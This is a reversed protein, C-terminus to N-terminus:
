DPSKAEEGDKPPGVVEAGSTAAPPRRRLFSLLAPTVFFDAFWALAIMSAALRGLTVNPQYDSLNMVMFGTVLIITANTVAAGVQRFSYRLAEVSTMGKRRAYSFKTLLHITDDIAVGIAITTVVVSPADLTIGVLGFFALSIAIPLVNPVMAVLAIFFSRYVVLILLSIAAIAIALSVLMSRTSTEAMNALLYLRGTLLMESFAKGGAIQEETGALAPFESRAIERLRAFAAQHMDSSAQDVRLVIRYARRDPSVFNSLNDVPKAGSEYQVYYQAILSSADQPPIFTLEEMAEDRELRAGRADAALDADTPVRYFAARNENQAQHIKKIIDLASDLKALVALPSDEDQMETRIRSEFREVQTLFEASVAIRSRLHRGEEARLRDLESAETPTLGPATPDEEALLRKIELRELGAQRAAVKDAPEVLEQAIFLLDLEGSGGIRGEIWDLDEIVADGDPFWARFDNDLQTRSAGFITLAIVGATVALIHKRRRVSFEVFRDTWYPRTGDLDPAAERAAASAKRVPILSLFAPAVTMTLLYAFIVGIGGTYGDMKVPPLTSSVQSFFAVATTMSTLFVPLANRRLVETILERKDSYRPRLLYYATVIHVTEAMCVTVLMHPSIATMNNMLDGAAWVAGEMGIIAALTIFLPILSAGVRRYLVFVVIALLVFMAGLWKMDRMGVVQFNREFVPQGTMRFDYSGDKELIRQIQDLAQAQSEQQFIHPGADRWAEDDGFAKDLETPTLKPRLLLVQMAATRGDPSVLGNLLRPDGIHDDFNANPGLAKRVEEEGALAAARRAGLVAIMRELRQEKTYEAPPKDFLDTVLLGEEGPAAEGWRIWPTTTLSRVHRVFPVRGLDRSLRAMAEISRTGFVGWPDDQDEFAVLVTDEPIFQQEIQYYTSVAPDARDFWIDVRADFLKPQTPGPPPTEKLADIRKSFDMIRSMGAAMLGFMLLLMAAALPWRWRYLRGILRVGRTEQALTM